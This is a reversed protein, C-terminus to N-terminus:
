TRVEELDRKILEAGRREGLLMSLVRRSRGFNLRSDLAVVALVGAFKADGLVGRFPVKDLM